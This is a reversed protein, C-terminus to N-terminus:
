RDWPHAVPTAHALCIEGTRAKLPLEDACIKFAQSIPSLVDACTKLAQAIPSLEAARTKLAQATPSLKDACTKLAVFSQRALERTTHAKIIDVFVHVPVRVHLENRAPVVDVCVVM